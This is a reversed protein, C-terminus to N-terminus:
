FAAHLYGYLPTVGAYCSEIESLHNDGVMGYLFGAAVEPIALLDKKYTYTPVTVPGVAVYLIDAAAKGSQYYEKAAWDTKVSAIDAELQKRHFVMAKAIDETITKPHEFVTAWQELAKAQPGMTKCATLTTPLESAIKRALTAARIMHHAKIDEVLEEVQPVIADADTVCTQIEDLHNEQM